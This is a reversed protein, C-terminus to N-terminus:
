FTVYGNLQKIRKMAQAVQRETRFYIMVKQPDCYLNLMIGRLGEEYFEKINCPMLYLNIMNLDDPIILIADSSIEITGYFERGFAVTKVNSVRMIQKEERRQQM